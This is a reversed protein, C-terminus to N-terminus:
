WGTDQEVTELYIPYPGIEVHMAEDSAYPIQKRNGVMDTAVAYRNGEPDKIKIERPGLVSWAVIVKKKKKAKHDAIFEYVYVGDKGDSVAGTLKPNPMLTTINQIAKAAPRWALTERNVLGSNYNDTDHMHMVHVREVGLRMAWLYTRIIYAAHLAESDVLNEVKKHETPYKGGAEQTLEYGVETWWIPKNAAGHKALLKRMEIINKGLAVPGWPKIKYAEPPAGHTYPHTSFIEYDESIRDGANEYVGEVFRYDARTAGGGGCAFGVVPLPNPLSNITEHALPLIKAYIAEREDEVEQRPQRDPILYHYNPENLIEVAAIPCALGTGEYLSGGPGYKGFFAQITERMEDLYAEESEFDPLKRKKRGEPSNLNNSITFMIEVDNRAAIKLAENAEYSPGALRLSRVGMKKIERWTREYESGWIYIGYVPLEQAPMAIIEELPPLPQEGVKWKHTAPDETPQTFYDQASVYPLLLALLPILTLCHKM